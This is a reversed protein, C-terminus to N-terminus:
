RPVIRVKMGDRQYTLPSSSCVQELLEDLSAKDVKLSLLDAKHEAKCEPSWELEFGIGNALSTMVGSFPQNEIEFSWVSRGAGATSSRRGSKEPLSVALHVDTPGTIRVQAGESAFRASPFGRRLEALGIRAVASEPYSFEWKTEPAIEQLVFRKGDTTVVEFNFGGCLLTLQTALHTESALRGAHMLDHPLTGEIVIGWATAINGLMENPTALEGWAWGRTQQALRSNSKAIQDHLEIAARQIKEVSDAPGLIVVNGVMAARAKALVAVRELSDLLSGDVARSRASIQSTASGGGGAAGAPSGTGARKRGAITILQMPPIRRDIWIAVGFANSLAEIGTRLPQDAWYFNAERSLLSWAARATDQQILSEEVKPPEEAVVRGTGSAGAIGFLLLGGIAVSARLWM